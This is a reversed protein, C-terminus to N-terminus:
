SIINERWALHAINESTNTQRHTWGITKFSESQKLKLELKQYYFYWMLKKHSFSFVYHDLYIGYKSDKCWICSIDFNETIKHTILAHDYFVAWFM